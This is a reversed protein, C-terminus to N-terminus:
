DMNRFRTVDISTRSRRNWQKKVVVDFILGGVVQVMFVLWRHLIGEFKSAMRYKSTASM